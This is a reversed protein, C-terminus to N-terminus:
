LDSRTISPEPKIVPDVAPVKSIDASAISANNADGGDKSPEAAADSDEIKALVPAEVRRSLRLPFLVGAVRQVITEVRSQLNADSSQVAQEALCLLTTLFAHM